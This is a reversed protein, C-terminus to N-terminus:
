NALFFDVGARETCLVSLSARRHRFRPWLLCHPIPSFASQINQLNPRKVYLLPRSFSFTQHHEVTAH